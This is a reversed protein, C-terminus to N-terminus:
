NMKRQITTWQTIFSSNLDSCAKTVSLPVCVMSEAHIPHQMYLYMLIVNSVMVFHGETYKYACNEGM